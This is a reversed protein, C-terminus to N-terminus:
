LSTFDSNKKQHNVKEKSIVALFKGAASFKEKYDVTLPFFDQGPRLASAATASVFLSTEGSRITVAGSALGALTGTSIEIDLNDVIVNHKQKM